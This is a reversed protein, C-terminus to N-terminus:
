GEVPLRISFTTGAEWESVLEIRGGHVGQVIRRTLTLGVGWGSSKTTVGPEFIEDRVGPDIGPGSDAIRVDVWEAAPRSCAISITGGRGALADLSNKLVDARLSRVIQQTYLLYWAVLAVLLAALGVYWRKPSM